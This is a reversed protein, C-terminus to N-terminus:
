RGFIRRWLSGRATGSGRSGFAEPPEQRGETGTRPEAREPKEEVTQSSERPESPAELEAELAAARQEAMQQRAREAGFEERIGGLESVFPRSLEQVFEM